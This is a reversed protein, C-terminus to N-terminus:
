ASKKRLIGAFGAVAMLMITLLTVAGPEPATVTGTYLLGTPNSSNTTGSGTQWVDFQLEYTDGAVFSSSTFQGETATVCGVVKPSCASGQASTGPPSIESQSNNTTNVLFVDVSDDAWVDLNLTSGPGAIFQQSTIQYVPAGGSSAGSISNASTTNSPVFTGPGTNTEGSDV